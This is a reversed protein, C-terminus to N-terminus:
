EWSFSFHQSDKRSFTRGWTFGADMFCKGLEVSMDGLEGLKNTSANIDLACGYGHTSLKDTYGRVMRLQFCGDFTKLQELLGRERVNKFAADLPAVIDKNCYIRKTPQGTATNILVASVDTPLSYTVMWKSEDKWTLVGKEDATVLGYRQTAQALTKTRPTGTSPPPTSPITVTIPKVEVKPAEVPLEVPKVAVVEVALPPVISVVPKPKKNFLALLIELIKNM